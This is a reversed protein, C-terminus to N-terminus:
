KQLLLGLLERLALPGQGKPLCADVFPLSEDARLTGSYMVVLVGPAYSKIERALDVGNMGPMINDIVAADVSHLKLFELAEAASGATFVQYGDAELIIRCIELIEESDDACLIRARAQALKPTSIPSTACVNM